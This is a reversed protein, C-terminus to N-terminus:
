KAEPKSKKVHQPERSYKRHRGDKTRERRKDFKLLTLISGVRREAGVTWSQPSFGLAQELVEADAGAPDPRDGTSIHNIEDAGGLTPRTSTGLRYIPVLRAPFPPQFSGFQLSKGFGLLSSAKV